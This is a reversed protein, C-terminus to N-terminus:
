LHSSIPRPHLIIPLSPTRTSLLVFDQGHKAFASPLFSIWAALFTHPLFSCDVVAHLAYSVVDETRASMEHVVSNPFTGGGTIQM